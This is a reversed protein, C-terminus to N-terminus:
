MKRIVCAEVDGGFVNRVRKSIRCDALLIVAESVVEGRMELTLLM